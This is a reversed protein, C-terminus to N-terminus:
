SKEGAASAKEPDKTEATEKDTWKKREVLRGLIFAIIGTGIGTQICFFLSEMEAPMEGGIVTELLPAAWPTYSDDISEIMTSGQGDSGEFGAGRLLLLPVIILLVAVVILIISLRKNNRNMNVTEKGM